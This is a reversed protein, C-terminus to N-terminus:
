PAWDCRIGIAALESNASPAWVDISRSHRESVPGHSDSPYLSAVHWIQDLDATFQPRAYLFFYLLFISVCVSV